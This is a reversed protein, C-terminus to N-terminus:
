LAEEPAFPLPGCWYFQKLRDKIDKVLMLKESGGWGWFLELGKGWDDVIHHLQVRHGANVRLWYGAKDPIQKKWKSM